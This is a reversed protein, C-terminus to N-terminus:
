KLLADLAQRFPAPDLQTVAVQQLTGGTPGAFFTPTSSVNAQQAQAAAASLAQDVKASQQSDLMANADLGPVAHAVAELLGDSVWGSNEAGQNKYLLDVVNWLRHQLAAAYAARLARESDPGLFAMGVFALKVKGTRVYDRVITPLADLAYQACYPCQLDAFEVMTVPATPKGLVNGAQPIGRLLATTEAAGTVSLEPAPSTATTPAVTASTTAPTTKKDSSGVVSAVILGVAIGIAAIGVAAFLATRSQLLKRM